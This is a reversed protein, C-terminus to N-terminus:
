KSPIFTGTDLMFTWRGSTLDIAHKEALERVKSELNARSQQLKAVLDAEKALFLERAGGLEQHLSTVQNQHTQIELLEESSVQIRNDITDANEKDEM